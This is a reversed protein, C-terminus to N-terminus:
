RKVGLRYTSTLPSQLVAVLRWTATQLQAYWRGTILPRQLQGRYDGSTGAAYELVLNQDLGARTAYALHLEIRPPFPTANEAARLVVRVRGTPEIELDAGLQLAAAAQDRRLVRNIQKGRKYYDDVVLGDDSVVAIVLTAFGSLVALAPFAILLWVYPERYWPRRTHGSGTLAASM